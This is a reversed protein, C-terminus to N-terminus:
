THSMTRGPGRGERGAGWGTGLTSRAQGEGAGREPLEVVQDWGGATDDDQKHKVQWGVSGRGVEWCHEREEQQIPLLAPDSPQSPCTLPITLHSLLTLNPSWPPTLPFFPRPTLPSSLSPTLSSVMGAVQRGM